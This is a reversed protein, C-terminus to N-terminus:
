PAAGSKMSRGECPDQGRVHDGVAVLDIGGQNGLLDFQWRVTGSCAQCRYFRSRTDSYVPRAPAGDARVADVRFAHLWGYRHSLVLTADAPAEVEFRLPSTDLPHAVPDIQRPGLVPRVAGSSPALPLVNRAFGVGGAIFDPHMGLACWTQSVFGAVHSVGARGGYRIPANGCARRIPLGLASEDAIAIEGHLAEIGCLSPAIRELVNLRVRNNPVTEFRTAWGGSADIFFNTDGGRVSRLDRLFFALVSLSAGLYLAAVAITTAKAATGSEALGRWGAALVLAFSPVMASVMWMPTIPRIWALFLAQAVVLGAGLAALRALPAYSRAARAVGMAAALLAVAQVFVALVEAAPVEALLLLGHWAGGIALAGLLRLTRSVLDHGLDAGAYRVLADGLATAGNADAVLPPLLTLAATTAALVLMIAPMGRTRHPWWAAVGGVVVLLATSPHAHLCASAALGLILGAPLDLRNRCRLVVHAYFLLATEVLATHTPFGLPTVSWGPLTMAVAFALGLRTDLLRVGLRWALMFKLASLVAILATAGALSQSVWLLGAVVYYWWPGLDLTQHIPPGHTPFGHGRLIADAHYLDRFHDSMGGTLWGAVGFAATLAACLVTAIVTTREPVSVV